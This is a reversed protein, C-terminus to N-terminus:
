FEHEHEYNTNTFTLPQKQMTGYIGKTRSEICKRTRIRKPHAHAHAATKGEGESIGKAWREPSKPLRWFSKAWDLKPLSGAIGSVDESTEKRM